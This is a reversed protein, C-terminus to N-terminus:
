ASPWVHGMKREKNSNVQVMENPCQFYNMWLKLENDVLHKKPSRETISECSCDNPGCCLFCHKCILQKSLGVWRPEGEGRICDRYCAECMCSDGRLTINHIGNCSLFLISFEVSRVGPHRVKGKDM